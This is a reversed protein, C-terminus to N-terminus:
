AISADGTLLAYAAVALVGVSGVALSSAVARVHRPHTMLMGISFGLGAVVCYYVWWFLAATVTESFISRVSFWFILGIWLWLLPHPRPLDPHTSARLLLPLGLLAPLLPLYPISVRVIVATAYSQIIVFLSLFLCFGPRTRLLAFYGFLALVCVLVEWST